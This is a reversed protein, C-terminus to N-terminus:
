GPSDISSFIKTAVAHPAFHKEWWGIANAQMNDQEDSQCELLETVVQKLDRWENVIVVPIGRYFPKDPLGNTIIICGARMAEYLRFSEPQAIGPPCIVIKSDYLLESYRKSDLGKSFGNTFRIYSNAFVHDYRNGILHQIRHAVPFPLHGLWSLSKFFDKRGMHLNGSFFVNYTRSSLKNIDKPMFNSGYGLPFHFYRAKTKIVSLYSQFVYSFIDLLDENEPYYEDMIIGVNIRKSNFPKLECHISSINIYFYIDIEEVRVMSERLLEEKVEQLYPGEFFSFIKEDFPVNNVFFNEIM